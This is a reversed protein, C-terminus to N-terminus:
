FCHFGIFFFEVEFNLRGDFDIRDAVRMIKSQTEVSVLENLTIM